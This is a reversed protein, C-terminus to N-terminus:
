VAGVSKMSGWQGAVNSATSLISSFVGMKGATQANSAEYQYLTSQDLAANARARANARITEADMEGMVWTSAQVEANSGLNVDFGSAGQIARQKGVMQSTKLRQRVEEQQGKAVEFQSQNRAVAAQYMATNAKAQASQSASAADMVGKGITAGVALFPLAAAM